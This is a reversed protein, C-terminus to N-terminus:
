AAAGWAIRALLGESAFTREALVLGRAVRAARDSEAVGGLRGAADEALSRTMEM